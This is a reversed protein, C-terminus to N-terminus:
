QVLMLVDRLTRTTPAIESRTTNSGSWYGWQWDTRWAIQNFSEYGYSYLPAIMCRQRFGCIDLHRNCEVNDQQRLLFRHLSDYISPSKSISSTACFEDAAVRWTLVEHLLYKAAKMTEKGTWIENKRSARLKLWAIGNLEWRVRFRWIRSQSGSSCWKWGNKTDESEVDVWLNFLLFHWDLKRQM